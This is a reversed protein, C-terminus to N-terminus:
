YEFLSLFYNRRDKLLRILVLNEAYLFIEIKAFYKNNKHQLSSLILESEWLPYSYGM